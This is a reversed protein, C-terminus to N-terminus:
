SHQNLPKKKPTSPLSEIFRSARRWRAIRDSIYQELQPSMQYGAGRVGATPAVQEPRVQEVSEEAGAASSDNFFTDVEELPVSLESQDAEAKVHHDESTDENATFIKHQAYQALARLEKRYWSSFRLTRGAYFFRTAALFAQQSFSVEKIAEFRIDEYNLRILKKDILLLRKSTVCLTAPGASYFGSVIGLVQEDPMLLRPLEAVERRSLFNVRSIRQSTSLKLKM